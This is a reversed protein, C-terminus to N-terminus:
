RGHQNELYKKREESTVEDFHKSFGEEFSEKKTEKPEM